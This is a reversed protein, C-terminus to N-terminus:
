VSQCNKRRSRGDEKGLDIKNLIGIVPVNERKMQEIWEEEISFDKQEALFVVLAADARKLVARTKEVRKEGLTGEDDFGATDILVCPGLPYIEMAKFVPDNTTGPTDSVVAVAQGSLANIISSKGHNRRGFVAIQLRMANPTRGLESVM